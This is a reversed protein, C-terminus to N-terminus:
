LEEIISFINSISDCTIYDKGNKSYSLFIEEENSDRETEFDEEDVFMNISINGSLTLYLSDDRLAKLRLDHFNYKSSYYLNEIFCCLKSELAQFINSAIQEDKGLENMQLVSQAQQRAIMMSAYEEVPNYEESYVTNLLSEPGQAQHNEVESFLLNYISNM